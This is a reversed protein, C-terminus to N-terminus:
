VPVPAFTLDHVVKDDLKRLTLRLQKADAQGELWTAGTPQPGGGVLQGYPFENNGPFWGTNHTHGSIVIQTKWRVLADHWAARSRGSHRDFGTKSYDQVSEDRWRLPIHCFVVRYPASALDPRRIVESLWEAQERRLADFAVRGGFSPHDDPKDEGTHLCIVAVPGSRFAHFPRGTPTAVLEPVRFAWPGRVDHNGWTLFMPRGLTVDRQGPNLLTPVLLEDKTWDNCTDGNWVLFDATPTVRDLQQITADNVHTDNWAVFRTTSAGPDLTRFPKWASVEERGDKTAVTVSRFRYSTGAKLGDVRIRLARNSQPVFGFADVRASGRGGDLSEWEVFGRCLESVGWVLDLGHDRPAQFVLPTTVLPVEAGPAVPAPAGPTTNTSPGLLTAPVDAALTPLLGTAASAAAVRRVFRRRNM